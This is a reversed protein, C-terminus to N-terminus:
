AEIALFHVNGLQDGLCIFRGLEDVDFQTAGCDLTFSALMAVARVDWLRLTRDVPPRRTAHDTFDVSQNSRAVAASFLSRLSRASEGGIASTLLLPLNAVRRVCNIPGGHQLSARPAGDELGFVRVAGDQGAVCVSGEGTLVLDTTRSPLDTEYLLAGSGFAWCTLTQARSVAVIRQTDDSVAVRVFEAGKRSLIRIATARTADWCRVTGDLSATFFRSADRTVAIDTVAQDHGVLAAVKSGTELNWIATGAFRYALVAHRGGVLVRGAVIYDEQGLEGTYPGLADSSPDWAVAASIGLVQEKLGFGARHGDPSVGLGHRVLLEWTIRRTALESADSVKWAKLDFPSATFAV